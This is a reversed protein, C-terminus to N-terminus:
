VFKYKQRYIWVNSVEYLIYWLNWLMTKQVDSLCHMWVVIEGTYDTGNQSKTNAGESLQYRGWPNPHFDEETSNPNSCNCYDMSDLCPVAEFQFYYPINMIVSVAIAILIQIQLKSLRFLSSCSENTMCRLVSKSRPFIVYLIVITICNNIICRIFWLLRSFQLYNFSCFSLTFMFIWKM